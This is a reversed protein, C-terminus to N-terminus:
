EAATLDAICMTELRVFSGNWGSGVGHRGDKTQIAEHVLRVLTGDEREDFTVTVRSEATSEARGDEFARKHIWSFVLKRSPEIEQYAGSLENSQGDKMGYLFRWGGGERLDVDVEDLHGPGPGFWQKIDSPTTWAAFMRAASARFVGEVVIPDSGDPSKVFALSM